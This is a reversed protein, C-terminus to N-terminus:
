KVRDVQQGLFEVEWKEQDHAHRPDPSEHWDLAKWAPSALLAALAASADAHTPVPYPIARFVAHEQDEKLYFSGPLAEGGLIYGRVLLFPVNHVVALPFRPWDPGERGKFLSYNDILPFQPGGFSPMKMQSGPQPDYVLLCLWAVYYDRYIFDQWNGRERPSKAYALLSAYADAKGLAILQNATKVITAPNFTEPSLQDQKLDITAARASFLFFELMCIMAIAAVFKIHPTQM